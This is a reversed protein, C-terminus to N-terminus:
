VSFACGFPSPLETRLSLRMPRAPWAGGRRAKETEAVSTSFNLAICASQHFGLLFGRMEMFVIRTLYMRSWTANRKFVEDVGDELTPGNDLKRANSIPQPPPRKASDKARSPALTVPTSGDCSKSAVAVWCAVCVSSDETSSRSSYLFWVASLRVSEMCFQKSMTQRSSTMSCTLSGRGMKSEADLSNRGPPINNIEVM